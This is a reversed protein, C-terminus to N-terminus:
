PVQNLDDVNTTSKRNVYRTASLRQNALPHKASLFTWVENASQRAVMEFRNLDPRTRQLAM